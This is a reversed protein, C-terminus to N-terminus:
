ECCRWPLRVGIRALHCIGGTAQWVWLDRQCLVFSQTSAMGNQHCPPLVATAQARRGAGPFGRFGWVLGEVAQRAWRDREMADSRCLARDPNLIRRLMVYPHRVATPQVAGAPGEVSRHSGDAQVAAWLERERM